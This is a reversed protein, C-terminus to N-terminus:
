LNFEQKIEKAVENITGQNNEWTATRETELEIIHYVMNGIMQRAFEKGKLTDIYIESAETVKKVVADTSINPENKILKRYAKLLKYCKEFVEEEM